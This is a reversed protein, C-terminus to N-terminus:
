FNYSLSLRGNIGPESQWALYGADHYEGNHYLNTDLLNYLNVGVKFSEYSWSIAGDLRFYDPLYSKDYNTFQWSESTRDILYQYGLSFTIGKLFTAENFKYNLWGNSMHPAYGPIGRKGLKTPDDTKTVEANTYAYNFMFNLEDTIQTNVDFEIGKSKVEGGQVSFARDPTSNVKDATLINYKRIYFGTLTSNVKGNFLSTKFGSEFINGRIPEFSKNEFHIGGVPALISEDYLGYFTIEPTIDTSLGFRPTISKQTETQQVKLETYRAALTLRLKNDLFHLEDQAYFSRIRTSNYSNARERLPLSRNITPFTINGYVPNNFNFPRTIPDIQLGWQSGDVFYEKETFDFGGMVRHEVIGTKFKGNAYLQFFQGESIADWQSMTRILNGSNNENDMFGVWQTNGIQKYNMAMYKAEISWDDNFQHTIKNLTSVETLRSSPFNPDMFSLRRSSQACRCDSLPAFSYGAGLYAKESQYIFETLFTTKDSIKFLLSPAIGLRTPSPGQKRHNGRNEYMVNFRAQLRKDETLSGGLDASARYFDYTGGVLSIKAIKETTPKKTVVNYFGGPEGAAMMFGSPGKVFEIRDVMFMDESLPGWTDSINMGNRFAPVRFGRMRIEANNGWRPTATVGSVNRFAADNINTIMQTELLEDSVVQINQPVQKIPTKLRLSTSPVKTKNKKGNVYVEDLENQAEVLTFPPFTINENELTFKIEQTEFGVMSIILKHRKNKLNDIFFTGDSATSSGKASGKIMVDVDSLPQNNKDVVKGKISNQAGMFSIAFLTLMFTAISKM